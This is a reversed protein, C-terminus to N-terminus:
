TDPPDSPAPGPKVADENAEVVHRSPPDMIAGLGMFLGALMVGQRARAGYRRATWVAAPALVLLASLALLYQAWIPM